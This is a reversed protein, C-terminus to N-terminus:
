TRQFGAPSFRHEARDLDASRVPCAEPDDRANEESNPYALSELGSREKDSHGVDCKAYGCHLAGLRGARSLERERSEHRTPGLRLQGRHRSGM